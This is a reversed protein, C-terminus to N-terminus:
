IEMEESGSFLYIREKADVTEKGFKELIESDKIKDFDCHVPYYDKLINYLEDSMRGSKYLFSIESVKQKNPITMM